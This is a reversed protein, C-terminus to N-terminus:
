VANHDRMVQGIQQHPAVFAKQGIGLGRAQERMELLGFQLLECASSMPKMM